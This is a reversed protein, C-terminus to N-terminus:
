QELVGLLGLCVALDERCRRARDRLKVFRGRQRQWDIVSVKQGGGRKALPASASASAARNGNDRSVLLRAGIDDIAGAIQGLEYKKTELRVLVEAPLSLDPDAAASAVSCLQRMCAQLTSLESLMEAFEAPANAIGTLLQIGMGLAQSVAIVSAIVSLPDM